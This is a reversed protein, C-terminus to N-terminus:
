RGARVHLQFFHHGVRLWTRTQLLVPADGKRLVTISDSEELLDPAMRLANQGLAEAKVGEAQVSLTAHQPEIKYADLTFARRDVSRGRYTVTSASKLEPKWHLNDVRQGDPLRLVCGEKRGLVVPHEGSLRARASPRHLLALLGQSLGKGASREPSVPEFTLLADPLGLHCLGTLTRPEGVPLPHEGLWVGSALAEIRMSAPGKVIPQQVELRAVPADCTSSLNGKADLFLDYGTILEPLPNEPLGYAGLELEVVKRSSTGTPQAADSAKTPVKWARTDNGMGWTASSADASSEAHADLAEEVADELAEPSDFGLDITANLIRLLSDATANLAAERPAILLDYCAKCTTVHATLRELREPSLTDIHAESQAATCTLPLTSM